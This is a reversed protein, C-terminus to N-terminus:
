EHIEISLRNSAWEGKVKGVAADDADDASLPRYVVQFTYTGPSTIGLSELDLGNEELGVYHNRDLRIRHPRVVSQSWREAIFPVPKVVNGRVNRVQLELNGETGIELPVQVFYPVFGVNRLEVRLSCPESVRHAIGDIALELVIDRHANPLLIEALDASEARAVQACLLCVSTVIRIATHLLATAGPDRKWTCETM